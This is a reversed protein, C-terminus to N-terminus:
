KAYEVDPATKKKTTREPVVADEVIIKGPQIEIVQSANIILPGKLLDFFGGQAYYKVINQDSTDIELDVVKGLYHGSRSIVKSGIIEKAKILM